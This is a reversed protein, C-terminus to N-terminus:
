LYAIIVVEGHAANSLLNITNFASCTSMVTIHAIESACSIDM